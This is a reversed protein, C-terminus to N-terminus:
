KWTLIGMAGGTLYDLIEEFFDVMQEPITIV